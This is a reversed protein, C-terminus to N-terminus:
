QVDIGLAEKAQIHEPEIRICSNFDNIAEQKRGMKQFCIGRNYFSSGSQEIQLVRTYDTIAEFYKQLRAYCFGRNQLDRLSPDKVQNYCQIAQAYQQLKRYCYGAGSMDGIRLCLEVAQKFQKVNKLIIIKLKMWDDSENFQQELQNCYQLSEDFRQQDNLCQILKILTKEQSQIQLAAKLDDICENNKNLDHLVLARNYYNEVSRNQQLLITYDSLALSLQQTNTYCFARLSVYKEDFQMNLAQNVFNISQQLKNQQKLILAKQYLYEASKTKLLAGDISQLAQDLQNLMLQCNSLQVRADVNLPDLKLVEEFDKLAAEFMGLRQYCEARSILCNGINRGSQILQSFLQIAGQYDSRKMLNQAKIQLFDAGPLQKLVSNRIITDIPIFIPDEVTEQCFAVSRYSNFSTTSFHSDSSPQLPEPDQELIQQCLQQRNEQQMSALKFAADQHEPNIDIIRQCMQIAKKEQGQQEFICALQYMSKINDNEIKLVNEYDAQAQVYQKLLYYAGARILLNSVSNPNKTLETNAQKIQNSLEFQSPQHRQSVSQESKPPLTM